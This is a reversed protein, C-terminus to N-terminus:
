EVGLFPAFDLSGQNTILFDRTRSRCGAGIGYLADTTQENLGPQALAAGTASISESDLTTALPSTARHRATMSCAM